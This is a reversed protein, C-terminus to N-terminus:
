AELSLTSDELWADQRGAPGTEPCAPLPEMLRGGERGWVAVGCGTATGPQEREEPAAKPCTPSAVAAAKLM